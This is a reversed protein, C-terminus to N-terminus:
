SRHAPAKKDESDGYKLLGEVIFNVAKNMRSLAQERLGLIQQQADKQVKKVQLRAEQTTNDIIAKSAADAEFQRTRMKEAVEVKADVVLKHAEEHAKKIINAAEAETDKIKKIIEIAM